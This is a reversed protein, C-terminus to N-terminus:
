RVVELRTGILENGVISDVEIWLSGKSAVVPKGTHLSALRDADANNVKYCGCEDVFLSNTFAVTYKANIESETM